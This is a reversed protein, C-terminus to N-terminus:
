AYCTKNQPRPQFSLPLLQFHFIKFINKTEHIQTEPNINQTDRLVQGAHKTQPIPQFILKSIQTKLKIIKPKPNQRKPSRQPM